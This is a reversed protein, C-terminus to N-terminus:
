SPLTRIKGFWRKNMQSLFDETLPYGSMSGLVSDIGCYPCLVTGDHLWEAVESSPFTKLCSFCGCDTSRLIEERNHGCHSHAAVLETESFHSPTEQSEVPDAFSVASPHEPSSNKRREFEGVVIMIAGALNVAIGSEVEITSITCPGYAFLLFYPCGPLMLLMGLLAVFGGLIEVHGWGLRM